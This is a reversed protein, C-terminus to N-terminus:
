RMARKKVGQRSDRGDVEARIGRPQEDCVDVVTVHAFDSTPELDCPEAFPDVPPAAEKGEGDGPNAVCEGVVTTLQLAEPGFPSERDGGTSDPVGLVALRKEALDLPAVAERRLQQGPVVLRQHRKASHGRAPRDLFVREDHVDAAARRLEHEAPRVADRKVRAELEAAHAHGLPEAVIEVGARRVDARREGVELRMAGDTDGARHRRERREIEAEDLVVGLAHVAM